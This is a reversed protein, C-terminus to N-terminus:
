KNYEFWGNNLLRFDDNKLYLNKLSDNFIKVYQEPLGDRYSFSIKNTKDITIHGFKFKRSLDIFRQMLIKKETTDIKYKNVTTIEDANKDAFDEIKFISKVNGFDDLNLWIRYEKVQLDEYYINGRRYAYFANPLTKLSDLNVEYKDIHNKNKCGLSFIAIFLFLVGNYIKKGPTM